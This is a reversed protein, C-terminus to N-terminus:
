RLTLSSLPPNQLGAHFVKPVARGPVNPIQVANPVFGGDADPRGSTVKKRGRAKKSRGISPIKQRDRRTDQHHIKSIFRTLDYNFINDLFEFSPSYFESGNAIANVPPRWAKFLVRKKESPVAALPIVPESWFYKENGIRSGAMKDVERSLLASNPPKLPLKEAGIGNTVSIQVLVVLVVAFLGM